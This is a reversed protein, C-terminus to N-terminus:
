AQASEAMRFSVRFNRHLRNASCVTDILADVNDPLEDGRWASHGHRLLVLSREYLKTADPFDLDVVELPVGSKRLRLWPRLM